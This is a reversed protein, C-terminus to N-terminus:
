LRRNPDLLMRIPPINTIATIMLGNAFLTLFQFPLRGWLYVWFTKGKSYALFLALTNLGSTCVFLIAILNLWLLLNRELRRELIDPLAKRAFFTIIGPLGGLLASALTILPLWAGQSRILCGLIDGLLGVIFGEPIGLFMGALVCPIYAFSLWNSGSIKVSYINTIAGLATMIGLLAVRKATFYPQKRPKQPKELRESKAAADKTEAVPTNEKKMIM